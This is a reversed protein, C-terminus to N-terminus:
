RSQRSLAIKSVMSSLKRNDMNKEELKVAASAVVEGRRLEEHEPPCRRTRSSDLELVVSEAGTRARRGPVVVGEEVETKSWGTRRGDRM